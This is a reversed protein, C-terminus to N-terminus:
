EDDDNPLGELKLQLAALVGKTPHMLTIINNVVELGRLRTPGFKPVQLDQQNLYLNSDSTNIIICLNYMYNTEKVISLFQCVQKGLQSTPDFKKDADDEKDLDKFLNNNNQPKLNKCITLVVNLLYKQNFQNSPDISLEMIRRLIASNNDFFLEFSREIEILEILVSMSNLSDEINSSNIHSLNKVLKVLVSEKKEQLRTLMLKQDETLDQRIERKSSGQTDMTEDQQNQDEADQDQKIIFMPFNVQM